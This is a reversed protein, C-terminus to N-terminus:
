EYLVEVKINQQRTFDLAASIDQPAGSFIGVTGGLPYGGILEVDAFLINISVQYDTTLKSIVPESVGKGLYTLRVLKEGPLLNLWDPRSRLLPEAKSLNSAASIFHRTVENQPNAFVEFVEGQEVVRGREMVAVHRCLNKVVQLQHTIIVLTLRLDRNLRWLLELIEQTTEPDLASTAEDSLLVKPECALARAIAVRQKQGGSLESPYNHAKGGLDVLQLMELAKKIQEQKSLGRYQLPYRVNDLISRSPMLNFHQFIMGIGARRGRLERPSLATLEEGDVVVKGGQDPRELLNICRVLTSKGAGSFGIIGYIDGREIELSVGELAKFSVGQATFTKSINELKIM